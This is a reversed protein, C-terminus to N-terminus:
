ENFPNQRNRQLETQPVSVNSDKLTKIKEIAAQNFKVTKLDSAKKNIYGQDIPKNNLTNLRLLVALLLLLVTVTIVFSQHLRFLKSFKYRYASFSHKM